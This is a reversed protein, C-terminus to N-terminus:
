VRDSVQGIPGQGVVKISTHFMEVHQADTIQHQLAGLGHGLCIDIGVQGDHEIDGIEISLGRVTPPDILHGVRRQHRWQLKLRDHDRTNRSM